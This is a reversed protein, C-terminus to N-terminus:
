NNEMKKFASIKEKRELNDKKTKQQRDFEYQRSNADQLTVTLCILKTNKCCIERSLCSLFKSVITQLCKVLISFWANQKLWFSLTNFVTDSM